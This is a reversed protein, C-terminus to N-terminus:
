KLFLLGSIYNITSKSLGTDIFKTAGDTIKTTAAPYFILVLLGILVGAIIVVIIMNFLSGSKEGM